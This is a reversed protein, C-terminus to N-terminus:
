MGSYWDEYAMQSLLEGVQQGWLGFFLIVLGVALLVGGILCVVLVWNKM